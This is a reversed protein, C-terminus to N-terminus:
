GEWEGDLPADDTREEVFDTEQEYGEEDEPLISFIQHAVEAAKTEDPAEINYVKTITATVGVSYIPM